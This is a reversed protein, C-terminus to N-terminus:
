PVNQLSATRGAVVISAHNRPDLTPKGDIVFLYPHKGPPLPLTIAWLGRASKFLALTGVKWDNFDGILDVQRAQPAVIKFDAFKLRAPTARPPRAAHHPIFEVKTQRLTGPEIGSFFDRYSRLSELLVASPVCALSMVLAVFSWFAWKNKDMTSRLEIM